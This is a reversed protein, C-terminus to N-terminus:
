KKEFYAKLDADTPKIGLKINEFLGKQYQAFQYDVPLTEDATVGRKKAENAIKIQSDYYKKAEEKAQVKDLNGM